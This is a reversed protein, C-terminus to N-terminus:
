FDDIDAQAGRLADAVARVTGLLHLQHLLRLRWPNLM